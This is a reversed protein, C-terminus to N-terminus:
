AFSRTVLDFTVTAGTETRLTLVNGSVSLITLKHTGMDPYPGFDIERKDSTAGFTQITIGGLNPHKGFPGITGAYVVYWRNGVMGSYHGTAAFTETGFPAQQLRSIGPTRDPGVEYDTIGPPIVPIPTSSTLGPVPFLTVTSGVPVVSGPAPDTTPLLKDQSSGLQIFLGAAKLVKSAEANPMDGIFPVAAVGDALPTISGGIPSATDAAVMRPAEITFAVGEAIFTQRCMSSECVLATSSVKVGNEDVTSAVDALQASHVPGIELSAPQEPRPGSMKFCSLIASSEFFVYPQSPVSCAPQETVWDAPVYIGVGAAGVLRTGPPPTASSASSTSPGAPGTSGAGHSVWAVGLGIVVVVLVAAAAALPALHRLLGREAVSSRLVAPAPAPGPSLNDWAERVAPPLGTM